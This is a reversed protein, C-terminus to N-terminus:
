RLYFNTGPLTALRVLSQTGTVIQYLISINQKFVPRETNKRFLYNNTNSVYLSLGLFHPPPLTLGFASSKLDLTEQPIWPNLDWGGCKLIIYNNYSIFYFSIYQPFSMTYKYLLWRATSCNSESQTLGM